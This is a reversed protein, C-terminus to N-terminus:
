IMKLAIKKITFTLSLTVTISNNHDDDLYLEIPIEVECEFGELNASISYALEITGTKM